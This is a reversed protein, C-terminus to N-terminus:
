FLASFNWFFLYNRGSTRFNSFFFNRIDIRGDGVHCCNRPEHGFFSLIVGFSPFFFSGYM